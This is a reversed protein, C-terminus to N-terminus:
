KGLVHLTAVKNVFFFLLYLLLIHVNKYFLLIRYFTFFLFM